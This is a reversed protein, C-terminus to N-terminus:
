GCPESGTIFIIGRAGHQKANIAKNIFSAHQTFNAGDFPSKPDSKRRNMGCSSSSKETPMSERITTTICNRPPSAMDPLSLRGMSLRRYEFVRDSCLRRQNQSQKWEASTRQETRSGRRDYNRFESFLQQQRGDSALGCARFQSAIYDAAKDLEPSGDGRGKMEDSALYKVHEFYRSASLDPCPKAAPALPPVAILSNLYLTSLRSSFPRRVLRSFLTTKEM